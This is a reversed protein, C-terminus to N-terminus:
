PVLIVLLSVISVSVAFVAVSLVSCSSPVNEVVAYFVPFIAVVFHHTYNHLVEAIQAIYIIDTIWQMKATVM